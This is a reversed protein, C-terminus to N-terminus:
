KCEGGVVEVVRIGMGQPARIGVRTIRVQIIAGIVTVVRVGICSKVVAGTDGRWAVTVM